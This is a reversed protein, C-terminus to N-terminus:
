DPGNSGALGRSRLDGGVGMADDSVEGAADVTRLGGLIQADKISAADLGVVDLTKHGLRFDVARQDAAGTEIGDGEGRDHIKLTFYVPLLGLITVPNISDEPFSM